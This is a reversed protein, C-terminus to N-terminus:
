SVPRGEGVMAALGAEFLLAEDDRRRALGAEVATGAWIRKMMRLLPPVDRYRREAMALRIGRMERYRDLRDGPKKPVAYTAGRNFTLSVLAGFAHPHLEGANPLARVTEGQFKPMTAAIFVVEADEWEIAIDKLSQALATMSEASEKAGSRGITAELRQAVAAPLRAWDRVFEAARVHALDYGFGITIGSDGKPWIPRKKIVADYFARGGTEHDVILRLARPSVGTTPSAMSEAAAAEPEAGAAKRDIAGFARTEARVAELAAEGAEDTGTGVVRRLVAAFRDTVDTFGDDTPHLEDAWRNGVVGRVDVYFANAHTGSANGGCLRELMSNLRDILVAIIDRRLEPDVIGLSNGMPGALWQDQRAWLPHRSDRPMAPIAYDYGHCLVPIGPFEAAVDCFLQCYIEELHALRREFEGTGLFWEAPKGPAFPKLIKALVSLGDTDEGVIDNGSGSFLLAKARAGWRRLGSLHRKQRLVMNELTDGASDLSWIAYSDGLQDIVDSLFVPFQFWSDGVSVLLNRPDGDRQRLLFRNQRRWTSLDNAWGMLQAGELGTGPPGVAVVDPNFAVAPAFPGSAEPVAVLLQRVVEEPVRPDVIMDRAEAISIRQGPEFIQRAPEALARRLPISAELGEDVASLRTAIKAAPLGPVVGITYGAQRLEDAFTALIRDRDSAVLDPSFRVTRVLTRFEDLIKDDPELAQAADTIRKWAARVEPIQRYDTRETIREIGIVMYPTGSVPRGANDLLGFDHPDVTVGELLRDGKMTRAVVITGAEIVSDTRSLGIELEAKGADLLLVEAGRKLPAIIPAVSSLFSGAATATLESLLDLYPKALDDSAVSFLAIESMLDGRVPIPGLLPQNVVIFRDLHASDFEQFTKTPSSVSMVERIGTTADAHVFRAHVTPYFKQSWRRADLIRASRLWVRVYERDPLVIGQTPGIYRHPYEEAARGSVRSILNSIMGM